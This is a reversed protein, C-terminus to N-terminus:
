AKVGDPLSDRRGKAGVHVDISEIYPKLKGYLRLSAKEEAPSTGAVQVRTVGQQDTITLIVKGM